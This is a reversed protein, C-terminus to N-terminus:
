RWSHMKAHDFWSMNQLNARRNDLSNNNKHHCVQDPRTYAILRHMSVYKAKGDAVGKHMAYYRSRSRNAYWNFQNILKYDIPSVLAIFGRTLPIVMIPGLDLSNDTQVIM